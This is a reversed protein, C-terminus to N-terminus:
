PTVVRGLFVGSTVMISDGLDNYLTCEFEVEAIKVSFEDDENDTVMTIDFRSEDQYPIGRDTSWIMGNSDIYEILAGDMMAGNNQIERKGYTYNGVTWMAAYEAGAPTFDFSDLLGIYVKEVEEPNDFLSYQFEEHETIQNVVQSSATRGPNNGYEDVSDTLWTNSGNLLAAFHYGTTPPQVVVNNTQEEDDKCSFFLIGCLAFLAIRTKM